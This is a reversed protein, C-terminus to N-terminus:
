KLDLGVSLLRQLFDTFDTPIPVEFGDPDHGVERIIARGEESAWVKAVEYHQGENGPGSHHSSRCEHPKVAHIACRDDETLFICPNFTYVFEVSAIGGHEDEKGPSLVPLRETGESPRYWWDIVLYRDFFEKLSLGLFGAAARVEDPLFWGPRECNGICETCSCDESNPWRQRIEEPTM